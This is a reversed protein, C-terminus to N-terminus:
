EFPNWDKAFPKNKGDRDPLDRRSFVKEPNYLAAKSASLTHSWKVRSASSGSKGSSAKGVAGPGTSGYEAYFSNKKSDPKGPKEWDHWGEPLIHAGLECDIFVTKAYAGPLKVCYFLLKKPLLGEPTKKKDFIIEINTSIIALQCM